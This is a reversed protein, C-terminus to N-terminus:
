SKIWSCILVILYKIKEVFRLQNLRYFSQHTSTFTNLWVRAYKKNYALNGAVKKQKYKQFEIAEAYKNELNANAIFAFVSKANLVSQQWNKYRQEPSQVKTISTSNFFYNYLIENISAIKSANLVLQFTIFMDEGMNYQPFEVTEYMEKKCLKNWVVWSECMHLMKSIYEEKNSFNPLREQLVYKANTEQFGCVVLDEDGAIAKEYLKQYMTTEVWDDSDCHAIYEGSSALFGTKRAQPLGKNTEHHLIKVQSKRNPYEEIVSQLIEISSDKTCDNVFIYEIDDFTQEFLSRACREIYKEVGYVPVIISVKPM